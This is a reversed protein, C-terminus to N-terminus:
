IFGKNEALWEPCEIEVLGSKPDPDGIEIQSKPLWEEVIGDSFLIALATERVIVGSLEITQKDM